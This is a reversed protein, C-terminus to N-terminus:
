PKVFLFGTDPHWGEIKPRCDLHLWTPTYKIDEITTLGAAAFEARHANIIQWVALPTLGSVKLDAARGTRHQSLKGGTSDWISRFGSSDYLPDDKDKFSWNNVICERGTTDRVLDCIRVIRPDILSASRKGLIKWTRLDVFERVDFWKSGHLPYEMPPYNFLAGRENAPPM